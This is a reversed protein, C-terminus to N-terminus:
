IRRLSSGMDAGPQKADEILLDGLSAAVQPSFMLCIIDVIHDLLTEIRLPAPHTRGLRNIHLKVPRFDLREDLFTEFPNGGLLPHSKNEPFRLLKTALM